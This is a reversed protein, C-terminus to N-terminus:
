EDTSDVTKSKQADSQPPLKVVILTVNDSVQDATFFEKLVDEEQLGGIGAGIMPLAITSIGSDEAQKVMSELSARLWEIRADAGPLYQSALNFVYRPQSDSSNEWLFAEGPSLTSDECQQVYERYMDPYKRSFLVAIGGSMNGMCNVGHAIAEVDPQNFLDGYRIYM